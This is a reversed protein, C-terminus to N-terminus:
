NTKGNKKLKEKLKNIGDEIQEINYICIENKIKLMKEAIRANTLTIEQITQIPDKM